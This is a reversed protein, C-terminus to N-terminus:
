SYRGLTITDGNWPDAESGKCCCRSISLIPSCRKFSLFSLFMIMTGNLTGFIYNDNKEIKM